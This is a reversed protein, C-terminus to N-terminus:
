RGAVWPLARPWSAPVLWGYTTKTRIECHAGDFVLGVVLAKIRGFVEHQPKESSILGSEVRKGAGM